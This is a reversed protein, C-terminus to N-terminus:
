ETSESKSADASISGSYEEFLVMLVGLAEAELANSVRVKDSSVGALLSIFEARSGELDDNEDSATLRKQSASFLRIEEKDLDMISKLQVPGQGDELDLEYGPYKEASKARLASLASM